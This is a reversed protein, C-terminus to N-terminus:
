LWGAELLGGGLSREPHGGGGGTSGLSGMQGGPQRGVDPAVEAREGV